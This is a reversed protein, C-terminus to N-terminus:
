SLGFANKTRQEMRKRAAERRALAEAEAAAAGSQQQAKRKASAVAADAAQKAASPAAPAAGLGRPGGTVAMVTGGTAALVRAQAAGTKARAAEYAPHNTGFGLQFATIGTRGDALKSAAGASPVAMPRAALPLTAASAPASPAPMSGGAPRPPPAHQQAPPTSSSHFPNLPYAEEDGEDRAGPGIAGWEATQPCFYQQTRPDYLWGANSTDRHYGVAADYAWVPSACSAAARYRAEQRRKLEADVATELERRAAEEAVRARAAASMVPPGAPVLNDEPRAAAAVDAAYARQAAAEIAGM